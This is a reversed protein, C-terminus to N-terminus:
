GIQRRQVPLGQQIAPLPKLGLAPRRSKFGNNVSQCDIGAAIAWTRTKNFPMDRLIGFSFSPTFRGQTTGIPKNQLSNYSIGVYFQDERYLSDIATFNPKEQAFLSCCFFFLLIKFIKM